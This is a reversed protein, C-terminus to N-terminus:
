LYKSGLYVVGALLAGAGVVRVAPSEYWAKENKKGGPAPAGPTSPKPATPPEEPFRRSQRPEEDLPMLPRPVDGAPTASPRAVVVPAAGAPGIWEGTVWGGQGSATTVMFWPAGRYPASTDDVPVGGEGLIEVVTGRGIAAVIPATPLPQARLNLGSPAVVVGRDGAGLAGMDGIGDGPMWPAGEGYDSWGEGESGYSM